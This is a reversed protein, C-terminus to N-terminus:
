LMDVRKERLVGGSLEYIRDCNRLTQINHSIIIQAVHDPLRDLTELVREETDVDLASTAEDLVILSANRYMVKAIGLRQKQGGSLLVANDGLRTDYEAPLKEIFDSAAAISCAKRVIRKQEESLSSIGAVNRYVSDDILFVEQPVYGVINQWGQINSQDIVKGDVSITGSSPELLGMILDCLTSKGSGSQGVLGIREGVGIRISLENLVLDSSGPYSFSINELDLRSKFTLKVSADASRVNRSLSNIVKYLSLVSADSSRVQAFSHYVLQISPLLKLGALTFTALIALDIYPYADQESSLTLSLVFLIACLMLGEILYRPSQAITQIRATMSAFTKNPEFFENQYLQQSGGLIVDRISGIANNVIIFRKKNATVKLTGADVLIIRVLLFIISYSVLFFSLTFLTIKTSLLTLFVFIYFMVTFNTIIALLPLLYGVVFLDVESLINKVMESRHNQLYFNYNKSLYASFIKQTIKQRLDAVTFNTKAILFIRFSSSSVVMIFAIIVSISQYTEEPFIITLIKFHLTLSVNNNEVLIFNLVPYISILTLIELIALFQAVILLVLIEKRYGKVIDLARQFTLIM